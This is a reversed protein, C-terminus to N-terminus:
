HKVRSTLNGIEVLGLVSAEVLRVVHEVESTPMRSGITALEVRGLRPREVVRRDLRGENLAVLRTLLHHTEVGEVGVVHVGVLETEVTRTFQRQRGCGEGLM